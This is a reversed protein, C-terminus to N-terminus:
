NVAINDILRVGEAYVAIFGRYKRNKQKRIMPTLTQVDAIQFYELKMDQESAFVSSVYKSITTANETGFMRKVEKLTRYILGAKKRMQESLLRNRSSLALGNTERVIPCGIVEVKFPLSESLRTVVQLQQFDKEGFYAKDPRILDFLMEVITAVGNFHGGRFEGEMVKDLGDFSYQKSAIDESYLEEVAPAFVTINGSLVELLALDAKLTKPYKRLDEANNFQTPNVFITVVIRENEALAKEVLSLHGEHLAGMTPVLGLTGSEAKNSNLHSLLEKKGSILKM